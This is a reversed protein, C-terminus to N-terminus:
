KAKSVQQKKIAGPESQLYVTRRIVRTNARIFMDNILAFLAGPTPFSGNAMADLGAAGAITDALKACNSEIAFYTKFPGRIVEYATGGINTYVTVGDDKHAEKDFTSPNMKKTDQLIETIRNKVAEMQTQSLHCGYAVIYKEQTTLCEKIYAEKPVIVFNGGAMFNGLKYTTRDYCGYTYITDGIAIDAHGFSKGPAKIRSAHILIEFNVDYKDTGEKQVTISTENEHAKVYENCTEILRKTETASVINPLGLHFRRKTNKEDLDSGRKFAIFDGMASIFALILYIGLVFFVFAIKSDGKYAILMITFVLYILGFIMNKVFGPVKCSIMYVGIVIRLIFLVLSVVILVIYLLEIFFNLFLYLAAAILLCVILTTFAEKIRGEDKCKLFSKIGYIVMLIIAILGSLPKTITVPCFILTLGAILCLLGYLINLAPSICQYIKLSTKKM